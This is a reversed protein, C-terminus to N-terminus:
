GNAKPSPSPVPGAQQRRLCAALRKARAGIDNVSSRKVDSWHALWVAYDQASMLEQTKKCIARDSAGGILVTDLIDAIALRHTLIYTEVQSLPLDHAALWEPWGFLVPTMESDSSLGLKGNGLVFVAIAATLFDDTELTYPDSPNDIVCIM